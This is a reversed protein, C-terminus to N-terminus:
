DSLCVLSGEPSRFQVSRATGALCGPGPKSLTDCEVSWNDSVEAKEFPRCPQKAGRQAPRDPM